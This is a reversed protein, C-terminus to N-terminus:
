NIPDDISAWFDHYAIEDPERGFNFQAELESVLNHAKDLYTSFVDKYVVLPVKVDLSM